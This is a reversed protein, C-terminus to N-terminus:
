LRSAFLEVAKLGILVIIISFDIGGAIPTILKRLPNLIPETIALLIYVMPHQWGPNVWSIVARIVIAYFLINCSQILMHIFVYLLIYTFPLINQLFIINVLSFRLLECIILVTLCSFDYSSNVGYRSFVHRQIPMVLPDTLQYVGQVLQQLRNIAFYNIFLRAWLVLSILNFLTTILFYLVSDFADM